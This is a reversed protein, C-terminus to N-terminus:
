CFAHHLVEQVLTAETFTESRPMAQLLWLIQAICICIGAILAAFIFRYSRDTM